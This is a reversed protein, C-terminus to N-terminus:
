KRRRYIKDRIDIYHVTIIRRQFEIKYLARWNGIRLKFFGKWDGGLPLPTADNFNKALWDLRDIIRRRIPRGFKALGNEAEGTFEGQWEQV